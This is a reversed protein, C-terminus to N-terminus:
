PLITGGYYTARTTYVSDICIFALLPNFIAEQSTSHLAAAGIM